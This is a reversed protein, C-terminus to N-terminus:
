QFEETVALFDCFRELVERYISDPHNTIMHNLLSTCYPYVKSSEYFGALNAEFKPLIHNCIWSFGYESFGVLEAGPSPNEEFWAWLDTQASQLDMPHSDKFKCDLIQLRSRFLAYDGAAARNYFTGSM